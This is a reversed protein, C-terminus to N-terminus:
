EASCFEDDRDGYEVGTLEYFETLFQERTLYQQEESQNPGPIRKRYYMGVEMMDPHKEGWSDYLESTDYVNYISLWYDYRIGNEMDIVCHAYDQSNTVGYEFMYYGLKGTKGLFYFETGDTVDWVICKVEGEQYTYIGMIRKFGSGGATEKEQWILEKIGDENIDYLIWETEYLTLSREYVYEMESSRANDLLCSFNGQQIEQMWNEENVPKPSEKSETAFPEENQLESIEEQVSSPVEENESERVETCIQKVSDESTLADQRRSDLNRIAAVIIIVTLTIGAIMEIKKQRNKM